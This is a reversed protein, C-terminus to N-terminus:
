HRSNSGPAMAVGRFYAQHDPDAAAHATALTNSIFSAGRDTSVYMVLSNTNPNFMAGMSTAFLTVVPGVAVGVTMGGLGNLTHSTPSPIPFPAGAQTWQGADLTWKQLGGGDATTGTDAVFLTNADSFCFARPSHTGAAVPFGPLRSLNQGQAIPLGNGVRAVGYIYDPKGYSVSAFLQGDHISAVLLNNPAPVVITSTLGGLIASYRMGGLEATANSGTCWFRTGNDSVVSAFRQFGDTVRTSTDVAGSGDVRVIVRSHKAPNSTSLNLPASFPASIDYVGFTLFRGDASLNLAGVASEAGQLAFTERPLAITQVFIGTPTLEDLFVPAPGTPTLAGTGDGVRLVVVNNPTFPDAPVAAPLVGLLIPVFVMRALHVTRVVRSFMKKM